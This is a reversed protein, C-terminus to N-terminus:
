GAASNAAASPEWVWTSNVLMPTSTPTLRTASTNQSTSRSRM